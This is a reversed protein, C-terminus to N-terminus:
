GRIDRKELAARLKCLVGKAIELEKEDIGSCVAREFEHVREHMQKFLKLGKPTLKAFRYRGDRCDPSRSVMGEAEMDKIQRTVAAANIGLRRAIEMVGIPEPHSVALIRMLALRSGPMGVSRSFTAILAQSTMMIERLIHPGDTAHPMGHRDKLPSESRM